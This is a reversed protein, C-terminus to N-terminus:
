ANFIIICIVKKVLDTAFFIFLKINIENVAYSELLVNSMHTYMLFIFFTCHYM